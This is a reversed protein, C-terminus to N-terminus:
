FPLRFDNFYWLASTYWLTTLVTAVLAGAVPLAWGPLRRSRVVLIKAVFAGYFVCGAISHAATRPDGLQVGYALICHGAIPITLAFLVDGVIRHAPRVPRPAARHGPLRRYIWLALLVQVVTLALAATALQAKLEYTAPGTRGFLSQGYDPTHWRGFLVLAVSVAAAVVVIPVLRRATSGKGPM